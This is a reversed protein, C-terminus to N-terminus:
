RVASKEPVPPKFESAVRQFADILAAPLPNGKVAEHESLSLCYATEGGRLLTFAVSGEEETQVRQIHKWAALRSAVLARKLTALEDTPLKRALRTVADGRGRTITLIGTNDLLYDVPETSSTAELHIQFMASGAGGGAVDRLLRSVERSPTLGSREEHDELLVGLTMLVAPEDGPSASSMAALAPEGIARLLSFARRGVDAEAEDMGGMARTLFLLCAYAPAGKAVVKEILKEATPAGPQFVQSTNRMEGYTANDAGLETMWSPLKLEIDYQKSEARHGSDTNWGHAGSKVASSDGDYQMTFRIRGDIYSTTDELPPLLDVETAIVEGPALRLDADRPASSNGAPAGPGALVNQGARQVVVRARRALDARASILTLPEKGINKAELIALIPEGREVVRSRLVVRLELDRPKEPKAEPEAPHTSAGPGGGGGGGGGGSPMPGPPPAPAPAPAPSAQPDPRKAEDGGGCGALALAASLTLIAPGHPIRPM